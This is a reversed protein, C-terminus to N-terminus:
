SLDIKLKKVGRLRVVKRRFMLDVIKKDDSYVLRALPERGEELAKALVAEVKQAKEALGQNKLDDVYQFRISDITEWKSEACNFVSVFRSYGDENALFDRRLQFFAMAAQEEYAYTYSNREDYFRFTCTASDQNKRVYPFISKTSNKNSKPMGSNLWHPMCLLNERRADLRDHNIHHIVYAHPGSNDRSLLKERPFGARVAIQVHLRQCFAYREQVDNLVTETPTKLPLGPIMPYRKREAIFIHHAAYINEMYLDSNFFELDVLALKVRKPNGKQDKAIGMEDSDNFEFLDVSTSEM